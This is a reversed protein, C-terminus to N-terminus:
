FRTFMHTVYHNGDKKSKFAGVGVHTFNRNLINAKHGSSKMFANFLSSSGTSSKGVNEGLHTWRLPNCRDDVHKQNNPNHALYTYASMAYSWDQAVRDLCNIRQLAPVGAAKRAANIKNFQDTAYALDNTGNKDSPVNPYTPPSAEAKPLLADYIKAIVTPKHNSASTNEDLVPYKIEKGTGRKQKKDAVECTKIIKQEVVRFANPKEAGEYVAVGKPRETSGVLVGQFTGVQTGPEENSSAEIDQPLENIGSENIEKHLKKLQGKPLTGTVIEGGSAGSDCYVTGDGLVAYSSPYSEYIIEDSGEARTLITPKSDVYAAVIENSAAPLDTAAFSRLLLFSGVLAFLAVFIWSRTSKISYKPTSAKKTQSKKTSKKAKTM